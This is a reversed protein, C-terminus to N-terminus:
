TRGPRRAEAPEAQRGRGHQLLDDCGVDMGFWMPPNRSDRYQPSIAALNAPAYPQLMGDLDLVVLSTAALGMVIDAQPNAKEAM